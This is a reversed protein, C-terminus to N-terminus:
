WILRIVVPGGCDRCWGDQGPGTLIYDDLLQGNHSNSDVTTVMFAAFGLVYVEKANGPEAPNNTAIPLIMICNYPEAVNANCGETGNVKARTPGSKTGTDYNFWNPATKGLNPSQNALGKFRDAKSSCDANGKSDLQPDHIRFTRGVAAGNITASSPSTLINTNTGVSTGKGNPNSTVDWSNIGCVIFPGDATFGTARQVRAKAYGSVTVTNPAGPVVHIFFTPFTARTRVRSGTANSPVNATCNGVVAWNDGIYECSNLTPTIGSFANAAVISQVAGQANTPAATTYRAIQRAGAIAGADAAGQVARKAAFAFGLDMALGLMGMLSVLFLALMVIIQGRSAGREPRADPTAGAAPDATPWRRFFATM